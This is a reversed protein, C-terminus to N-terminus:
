SEVTWCSGGGGIGGNEEKLYRGCEGRDGEKTWGREERIKDDERGCGGERLGGGVGEVM